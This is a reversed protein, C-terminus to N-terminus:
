MRGRLIIKGATILRRKEDNALKSMRGLGDIMDEYTGASRANSAKKKGGMRGIKKYYDPDELRMKAKTALGGAYGLRKAVGSGRIKM